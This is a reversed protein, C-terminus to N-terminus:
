ADFSSEGESESTFGAERRLAALDASIDAGLALRERALRLRVEFRRWHAAPANSLINREAADFDRWDM